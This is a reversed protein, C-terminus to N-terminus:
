AARGAATLISERSSQRRRQKHEDQGAEERQLMMRWGCGMMEVVRCRVCWGMTSRNTMTQKDPRKKQRAQKRRAQASEGEQQENSNRDLTRANEIKGECEAEGDRSGEDRREERSETNDRRHDRGLGLLTLWKRGDLGLRGLFTPKLSQRAKDQSRKAKSQKRDEAREETVWPLALSREILRWRRQLKADPATTQAILNESFNLMRCKERESVERGVVAEIQRRWVESSFLRAVFSRFDSNSLKQM